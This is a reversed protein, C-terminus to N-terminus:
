GAAEAAFLDSLRRGRYRIGLVVTAIIAAVVIFLTPLTGMYNAGFDTALPAVLFADYLWHVVILLVLNGGTSIYTWGFLLGTLTTIIVQPLVSSPESNILNTLHLLGFLVSSVVVAWFVTTKQGIANLAVGRFAVEEGIGVFLTGLFASTVLSWNIGGLSMSYIAGGALAVVPVIMLLSFPTIRRSRFIKLGTWRAIGVTLLALIGVRWWVENLLQATQSYSYSATLWIVAMGASYFAAIGVGVLWGGRVSGAQDNTITM